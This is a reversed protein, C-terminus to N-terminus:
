FNSSVARLEDALASLRTADHMGERVAAGPKGHKIESFLRRREARSVGHAAMLADLRRQAIVPQTKAAALANATVTGAPLISDAFGKDIADKAGLWTEDDMMTAIISAAQKSRDAYVSQMAADVQAQVKACGTMDNRDGVCVGWCNHIMEFATQGIRIEDGAMAIISAASAALGLINVTVAGPHGRLLEYIAAGEFYDGGPSNINVTVDGAGRLRALVYATDVGEGSWPDIGIVDTIDIVTGTVAASLQL